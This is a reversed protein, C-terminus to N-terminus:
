GDQGGLSVNTCIAGYLYCTYCAHHKLEYGTLGERLTQGMRAQAEGVLIPCVYLGRSTAIRTNSCLLQAPDYGELMEPTVIEEETYPRDRAVERGLKLSPLVKIRPRTYGIAKLAASFAQFNETGEQDEQIDTATIIPLFGQEVLVRVGGLAKQFSGEGRIPDNKEATHGDLSLRIELSYRSDAEIRALREATPPSLLTGNTLVTAPGHKLTLALIDMIHPNMFPEGGTFYYEKVGLEFSAELHGAVQELSM